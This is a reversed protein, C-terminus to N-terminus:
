LKISKATKEDADYLIATFEDGGIRSVIDTERFSKTMIEAFSIILKDGEAHGYNDNVYKLKDIDFM